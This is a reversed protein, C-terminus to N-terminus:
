PSRGGRPPRAPTTRALDHGHDAVARDAQAPDDRGPPQAGLLDDDEAPVRVPDCERRSKPAVSTTLSRPSARELAALVQGVAEARMRHEFADPGLLRRRRRHADHARAARDTADPTGWVEIGIGASTRCCYRIAPPGAGTRAYM